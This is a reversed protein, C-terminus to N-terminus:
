LLMSMKANFEGRFISNRREVDITLSIYIGSPNTHPERIGEKEHCPLLLGLSTCSIVAASPELIPFGHSEWFAITWVEEWGEKLRDM